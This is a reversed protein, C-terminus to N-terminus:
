NLHTDKQVDSLLDLRLIKLASLVAFSIPYILSNPDIVGLDSGDTTRKHYVEPM